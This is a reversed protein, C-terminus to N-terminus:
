AAEAPALEGLAESLEALSQWGDARSGPERRLWVTRNGRAGAARLRHPASSVYLVHRGEPVEDQEVVASFAGDFPRLAIDLLRRDLQSVALLRRGLGAALGIAAVADPYPRTLFAARALSEEGSEEGIWGRERALREFALALGDGALAEIRRRLAAGRDLPSEGNRRALEYAVAEIAPRSDLLTGQCALAVVEIDRYITM